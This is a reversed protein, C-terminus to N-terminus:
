PPGSCRIVVTLNSGYAYGCVGSAIDVHTSIMFERMRM